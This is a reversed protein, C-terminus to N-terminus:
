GAMDRIGIFATPTCRVLWEGAVANRKGFVDAQDDGMYRGGIKTSWPLMEELDDHLTVTGEVTLFSFPPEDDEFCLAIRPDRRMAKYKISTDGVTFLIQRPDTDEDIVVWVPVVHPRGDARVCALKATQPRELIFAYAEDGTMREAM